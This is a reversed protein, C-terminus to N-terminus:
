SKVRQWAHRVADKMREWPRDPYRREWDSRADAEFSDWDRGAYRSDGALSHGYEYAPGYDEFRGSGSGYRTSFDSRFDSDYEKYPRLRSAAGFAKGQLPEVEVETQRETDRVTESRERVEKGVVVEEVVRARKQVVPEESSESVEITRDQFARADGAGVERDAPRREVRAREERLRVTEEVPREETHTYVRVGGGSVPRKGVRVEERLVPIVEEGETRGEAGLRDDSRATIPAGSLGTTDPSLPTQERDGTWGSQRWEAVREDIDVAGCSQLSDRVDDIRSEDEVDVKVVAGGRRVHEAYQHVDAHDDDGSGFVEAFFSRVRAMLGQDEDHEARATTSTGYESTESAATVHVDTAPIGSSQLMDAAKRAEEYRDFVGVVTQRM